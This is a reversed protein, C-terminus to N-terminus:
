DYFEAMKLKGAAAAKKNDPWGSLVSVSTASLVDSNHNSFREKISQILAGIVKNAYTQVDTVFGSHTLSM